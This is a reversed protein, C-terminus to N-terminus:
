VISGGMIRSQQNIYDVSARGIEKSSIYARFEKSDVVDILVGLLRNTEETNMFQQENFKKPVVAEGQHLQAIMDQPVYNTGTELRTLSITSLSSLSFGSIGIAKLVANGLKRLGSTLSNIGIICGNVMGEVGGIIKNLIGRVVNWIGNWINSMSDRISNFVSTTTSKILNWANIINTRMNTIKNIADTKLQDWTRSLELKIQKWIEVSGSKINEWLQTLDSKLNFGSEKIADKLARWLTRASSVMDNWKEKLKERLEGFWELVGEALNVLIKAIDDKFLLVLAALATLAIAWGGTVAGFAIALGAVVVGIDILVQIFNEWSPNRILEVLDQVLAVIGAVAVGVGLSKIIDLGLKVATIAAVIGLIIALIEKAKREIWDIVPNNTEVDKFPDGIGGAGSGGSTDSNLNNIEDFSALAKSADKAAKGTAKAASRLQIGALGLGKLFANLYSLLTAFLNVLWELIPALLSGLTYYISDIKAKLEDNQALYANMSKSIASYVTRIGIMSFAIKKIGGLLGNLGSTDWNNNVEDQTRKVDGLADNVEEVKDKVDDVGSTDINGLAEQIASNGAEITGSKLDAILRSLENRQETLASIYAAKGNQAFAQSLTASVQKYKEQLKELAEISESSEKKLSSADAKIKVNTELIEPM